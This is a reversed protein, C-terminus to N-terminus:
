VNWPAVASKKKNRQTGRQDSTNALHTSSNFIYCKRVIQLDPCSRGIHVSKNYRFCIPEDSFTRKLTRPLMERLKDNLNRGIEKVENCNDKKLGEPHKKTGWSM